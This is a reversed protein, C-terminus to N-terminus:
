TPSLLVILRISDQAGNFDTRLTEFAGANLHVLPAQGAPAHHTGFQRYGLVAAAIVVILVVVSSRKLAM